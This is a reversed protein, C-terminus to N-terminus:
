HFVDMYKRADAAIDVGFIEVHPFYEQWMRLSAGKFVGLELLRIPQYRFRQLFFEYKGLYNHVMSCKDTSHKIGIADLEVSDCFFGRPLDRNPAM